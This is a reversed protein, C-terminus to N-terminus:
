RPIRPYDLSVLVLDGALVPSTGSGYRGGYLPMPHQWAVKGAFDFAMLGFSGFYIYVREGDTVPPRPQITRKTSKKSKPRTWASAGCSRETVGTLRSRKSSSRAPM